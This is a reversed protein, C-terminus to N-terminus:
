TSVQPSEDRGKVTPTKGGAFLYLDLDGIDKGIDNKIKSMPYYLEVGINKAIAKTLDEDLWKQMRQNKKKFLEGIQEIGEFAKPYLCNKSNTKSLRDYM